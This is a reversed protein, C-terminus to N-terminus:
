MQTPSMSGQLRSKQKYQQLAPAPHKLSFQNRLQKQSLPDYELHTQQAISGMPQLFVNHVGLMQNVYTPPRIFDGQNTNKAQKSYYFKQELGSSLRSPLGYDPFQQSSITKSICLRVRLGEDDEGQWGLDHQTQPKPIFRSERRRAGTAITNATARFRQPYGNQRLESTGWNGM